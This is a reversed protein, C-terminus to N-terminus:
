VPWKEFWSMGQRDNYLESAVPLFQDGYLDPDFFDLDTALIAGEVESAPTGFRSTLRSHMRSSELERKRREASLKLAHFDDEVLRTFMSYAWSAMNWHKRMSEAAQLGTRYREKAFPHESMDKSTNVIKEAISLLAHFCCTNRNLMAMHAHNM